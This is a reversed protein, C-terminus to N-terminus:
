RRTKSRTQKTRKPQVNYLWKEYKSIAVQLGVIVGNYYLGAEDTASLTRSKRKARYLETKLDRVIEQLPQTNM